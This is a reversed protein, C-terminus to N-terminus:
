LLRSRPFSSSFCVFLFQLFSRPFPYASCLARVTEERAGCWWERTMVCTMVTEDRAETAGQGEKARKEFAKWWGNDNGENIAPRTIKGECSRWDIKRREGDGIGGRRGHRERTRKPCVLQKVADLYVRGRWSGEALSTFWELIKHGTIFRPLTTVQPHGPGGVQDVRDRAMKVEAPGGRFVGVGAGEAQCGWTFEPSRVQARTIEDMKIATVSDPEKLRWCERRLTQDKRM